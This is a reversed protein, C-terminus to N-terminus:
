AVPSVRKRLDFHWTWIQYIDVDHAFAVMAKGLLSPASGRRARNGEGMPHSLPCPHPCRAPTLHEPLKVFPARRFILGLYGDATRATANFFSARALYASM